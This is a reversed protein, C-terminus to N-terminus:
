SWGTQNWGGGQNGQSWDASQQGAQQFLGGFTNLANLASNALEVWQKQSAKGNSDASHTPIARPAAAAPLNQMPACGAQASQVVAAAAQYQPVDPRMVIAQNLAQSAAALHPPAFQGWGAATKARAAQFHCVAMTAFVNDLIPMGYQSAMAMANGIIAISQDYCQAALVWNGVQEAFQGQQAVACGQQFQQNLALQVNPLM